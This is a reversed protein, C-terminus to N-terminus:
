GGVVGVLVFLCFSILDFNFFVKSLFEETERQIKPVYVRLRAVRLGKAMHSMQEKRKKEPADYVVNPGFVPKM